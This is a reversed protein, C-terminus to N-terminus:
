NYERVFFLIVLAKDRYDVLKIERGNNASLKFEPAPSGVNMEDNMPCCEKRVEDHNFLINKPRPDECVRFKASTAEWGSIDTTGIPGSWHPKIKHM